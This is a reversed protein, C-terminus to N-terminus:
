AFHSARVARALIDSIDPKELGGDATCFKVGSRNFPLHSATVM